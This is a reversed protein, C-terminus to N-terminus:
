KVVICNLCKLTFVFRMVCLRIHLRDISVNHEPVLIVSRLHMRKHRGIDSNEPCLDDRCRCFRRAAFFSFATTLPVTAVLTKIVIKYEGILLLAALVGFVAVAGRGVAFMTRVNLSQTGTNTNSVRTDAAFTFVFPFSIFIVIYTYAGHACLDRAAYRSSVM